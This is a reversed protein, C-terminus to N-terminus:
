IYNISMNLLLVPLNAYYRHVWTNPIFLYVGIYM